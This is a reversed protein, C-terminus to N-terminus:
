AEFKLVRGLGQALQERGRVVAKLARPNDGLGDSVDNFTTWAAERLWDFWRRMAEVSQDPLAQMTERFLPELGAWYRREAGMTARLDRIDDPNARREGEEDPALLVAAMTSSAKWLESATNEAAELARTLLDVLHLDKLYAVPLPMHESRYFEVKAQDSAMGLAMCRLSYHDDLMPIRGEALRALWELVAPPQQETSKFRLLTASDRWLARDESFRKSIYGRKEDVRYHKMPDRALLAADLKLGPTLAITRVVIGRDSMEPMLLLRRNQWTLYDLYGHPQERDPDYADAMEWAPRDKANSAIPKDAPYEILNLV